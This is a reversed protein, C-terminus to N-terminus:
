AAPKLADRLRDFDKVLAEIAAEAEVANAVNSPKISRVVDVLGDKLEEVGLQNNDDDKDLLKGAGNIFQRAGPVETDATNMANGAAGALASLAITKLLKGINIHM